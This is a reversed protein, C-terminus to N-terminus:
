WSYELDKFITTEEYVALLVGYIHGLLWGFLVFLGLVTRFYLLCKKNSTHAFFFMYNNHLIQGITFQTEFLFM